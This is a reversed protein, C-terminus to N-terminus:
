KLCNLSSPFIIVLKLMLFNTFCMFQIFFNVCMAGVYWSLQFAIFACMIITKKDKLGLIFLDLISVMSLCSGKKKAGLNTNVPNPILTVPNM